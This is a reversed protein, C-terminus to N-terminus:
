GFLSGLGELAEEEKAEEEEKKEEKAEKKESTAAAPAAAVPIAATKMAEKIDVGELAAMLQKIQIEDPTGGAAEIIRKLNEETVEKDLADLMLTAYIYEM